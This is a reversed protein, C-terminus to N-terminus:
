RGTAGLRGDVRGPRNAAGRRDSRSLARPRPGAASSRGTAGTSGRHSEPKATGAPTAPQDSGPLWALPPSAEHAAPLPAPGPPDGDRGARPEVLAAAARAPGLRVVGTRAWRLGAIPAAQGAADVPPQEEAMAVQLLQLVARPRQRRLQVPQPPGLPRDLTADGSIPAASATGPPPRQRPARSPQRWVAGGKTRHCLQEVRAQLVRWWAM